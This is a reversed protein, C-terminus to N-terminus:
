IRKSATFLKLGEVQHCCSEKSLNQFGYMINILSSWARSYKNIFSDLLYYPIPLTIKVKVFPSFKKAEQLLRRKSTIERQAGVGGWESARELFHRVRRTLKAM